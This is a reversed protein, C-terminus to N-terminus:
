NLLSKAHIQSRNITGCHPCNNTIKADCGIRGSGNCTDCTLFLYVKGSGDCEECDRYRHEIGTNIHEPCDFSAELMSSLYANYNQIKKELVVNQPYSNKLENASQLFNLIEAHRASFSNKLSSWDNYSIDSSSFVDAVSPLSNVRHNEIIKAVVASGGCMVFIVVGIIFYIVIIRGSKTIHIKM